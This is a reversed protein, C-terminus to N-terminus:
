NPLYRRTVMHKFTDILRLGDMFSGMYMYAGAYHGGWKEAQPDTSLRGVAIADDFATQPSDRFIM